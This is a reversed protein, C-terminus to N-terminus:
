FRRCCSFDGINEFESEKRIQESVMEGTASVYIAMKHIAAQLLSSERCQIESSSVM